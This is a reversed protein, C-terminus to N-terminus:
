RKKNIQTQENNQLKLWLKAVAEEPTKDDTNPMGNFDYARWKDGAKILCGFRDGCAAILETLTPQTIRTKPVRYEKRQPFGAEKLKKALKYNLM